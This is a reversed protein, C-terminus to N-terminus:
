ALTGYLKLTITRVGDTSNDTFVVKNILASSMVRNNTGVHSFDKINSTSSYQEFHWFEGIHKAYIYQNCANTKYSYVLTSDNYFYVYSYDTGSDSISSTINLWLESMDGPTFTKTVSDTQYQVTTYSDSGLLEPEGTSKKAVDVFSTIIGDNTSDKNFNCYYLSTQNSDIIGHIMMADYQSGLREFRIECTPNTTTTYGTDETLKAYFSSSLNSNGKIGSHQLIFGKIGSTANNIAQVNAFFDTSSLNADTLGIQSLSTYTRINHHTEPSEWSSIVGDSMTRCYTLKQAHGSVFAYQVGNTTTEAYSLILATGYSTVGQAYPTNLANSTTRYFKCHAGSKLITNMDYNASNANIVFNHDGFFIHKKANVNDRFFAGFENFGFLAKAEGDRFHNITSVYEEEHQYNAPYFNSKVTADSFTRETTFDSTVNGGMESIFKVWGTWTLNTIYYVGFWMQATSADAFMFETRYNGAKKVTLLGYGENPYISSNHASAVNMQLISNEPLASVITSITESGATLGIESLGTFMKVDHKSAFDDIIDFNANFDDVNYFDEPAPKILKLNTTNTAM